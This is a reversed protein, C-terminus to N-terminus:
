RALFSFSLRGSLHRRPIGPLSGKGRGHSRERGEVARLFLLRTQLQQSCPSVTPTFAPGAIVVVFIIGRRRSKGNGWLFVLLALYRYTPTNVALLLLYMIYTLPKMLQKM